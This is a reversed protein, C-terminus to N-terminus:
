QEIEPVPMLSAKNHTSKSVFPLAGEKMLTNLGFELVFALEPGELTGQFTVSEGDPSETVHNIKM